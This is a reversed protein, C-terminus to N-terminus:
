HNRKPLCSNCSQNWTAKSPNSGWIFTCNVSKLVIANGWTLFVIFWSFFFYRSGPSGSGHPWFAFVTTKLSLNPSQIAGLPRVTNKEEVLRAGHLAQEDGKVQYLWSLRFSSSRPPWVTVSGLPSSHPICDQPRRTPTDCTVDYGLHINTLWTSTLVGKLLFGGKM